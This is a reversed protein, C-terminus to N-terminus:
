MRELKDDVHHNEQDTSAPVTIYICAHPISKTHDTLIQVTNLQLTRHHDENIM